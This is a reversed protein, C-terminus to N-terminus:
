NTGRPGQRRTHTDIRQQWEGSSMNAIADTQSDIDEELKEAPLDTGFCKLGENIATMTRAIYERVQERTTTFTPRAQFTIHAMFIRAFEPDDFANKTQKREANVADFSINRELQDLRRAISESM